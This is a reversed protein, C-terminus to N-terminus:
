RWAGEVKGLTHGHSARVTVSMRGGFEVRATSHALSVQSRLVPVVCSAYRPALGGGM